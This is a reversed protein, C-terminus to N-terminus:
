WNRRARLVAELLEALISSANIKPSEASRERGNGLQKAKLPCPYTNPRNGAPTPQPEKPKQILGLCM